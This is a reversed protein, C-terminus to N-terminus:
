GPYSELLDKAPSVLNNKNPRKKQKAWCIRGTLMNPAVCYLHEYKRKKEKRLEFHDTRGCLYANMLDVDKHDNIAGFASTRAAVRAYTQESTGPEDDIRGGLPEDAKGGPESQGGTANMQDGDQQKKAGNRPEYM